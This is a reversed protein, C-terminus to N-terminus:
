KGWVDSKTCYFNVTALQISSHLLGKLLLSALIAVVLKLSAFFHCSQPALFVYDFDEAVLLKNWQNYKSEKVEKQQASM